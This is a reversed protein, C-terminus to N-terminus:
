LREGRGGRAVLEFSAPFLDAGLDDAAQALHAFRRKFLAAAQEKSVYHVEAVVTEGELSARLAAIDAEGAGDKLYVNIAVRNWEAVAAHLNSVLLIFGGLIFLSACIIGITLANVTRSRVINIAAERLFYAIRASFRRTM